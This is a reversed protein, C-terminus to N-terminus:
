KVSPILNYKDLCVRLKEATDHSNGRMDECTIKNKCERVEKCDTDKYLVKGDDSMVNDKVFMCKIFHKFEPTVEDSTLYETGSRDILDKEVNSQKICEKINENVVTKDFEPLVCGSPMDGKHVNLGAVNVVQLAKIFFIVNLYFAFTKM